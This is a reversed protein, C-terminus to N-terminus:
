KLPRGKILEYIEKAALKPESNIVKYDYENAQTLELRATKLRKKIQEETETGRLRIRKELESFHPPLIFILLSERPYKNKITKAGQVDLELILHTNQEKAKLFNKSLTGYYNGHVLAYELFENQEILNKFAAETLFFYDIGDIEGIRPKRSTASVSILLDPELKLLETLVIKKGVGSPGSIVILSSNKKV